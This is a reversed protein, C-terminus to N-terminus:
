YIYLEGNHCLFPAAFLYFYYFNKLFPPAFNEQQQSKAPTTLPEKLGM